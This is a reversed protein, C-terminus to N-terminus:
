YLHASFAADKICEAVTPHPFITNIIERYTLEASMALSIVSIIESVNEGFMHAGLIEGSQKDFIVKVFGHAGESSVAKGNSKLWCKGVVANECQDKAQKEKMGISAIQPSCYVCSPIKM